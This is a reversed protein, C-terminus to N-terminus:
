YLRHFDEPPSPIAGQFKISFFREVFIVKIILTEILFIVRWALANLQDENKQKENLFSAM